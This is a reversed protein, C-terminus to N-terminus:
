VTPPEIVPRLLLPRVSDSFPPACVTAGTVPAVDYVKGLPKLPPDYETAIVPCGAPCVQESTLAVPVMPADFTELTFTVQVAAPAM